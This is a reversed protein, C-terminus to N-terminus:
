AEKMTPVSAIISRQTLFYLALIVGYSGGREIWEFLPYNAYSSESLVKWVFLVLLLERFPRTLIIFAFIIEMIGVIYAVSVTDTFGLSAYQSLLGKKLLLNLWGHGVFLLFGAIRLCYYLRENSQVRTNEIPKVRSFWQRWERPIGTLLLFALPVLYNGAREIFEPFPEGSLPRLLATVLGWMMLWGTIIRMPYVIMIIGLLIDITGVIPMLQYSLQKDIGFVGFYNCWIAKTIIGFTGHGIFCMAVTIRLTYFVKQSINLNM